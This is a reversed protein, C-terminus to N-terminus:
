RGLALRIAFTLRNQRRKVAHGFWDRGTALAVNIGAVLTTKCAGSPGCLVCMGHRPLIGDILFEPDPVSLLEVDELM